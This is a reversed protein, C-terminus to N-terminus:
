LPQYPRQKALPEIYFKEHRASFFQQYILKMVEMQIYRSILKESLKMLTQEPNLAYIVM